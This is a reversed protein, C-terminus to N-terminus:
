SEFGCFSKEPPFGKQPDEMLRKSNQRVKDVQSADEASMGSTDTLGAVMAALGVGMAGAVASATGGGPAPSQSALEDLFGRVTMDAFSM